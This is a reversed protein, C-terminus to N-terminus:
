QGEGLGGAEDSRRSGLGVPLILPDLLQGALTPAVKADIGYVPPWHKPLWATGFVRDILPFIAAFNRDRNEDNTHHWHHFAPTSVLWELPGLRFRVNAHIFFSWITGVITVIAVGPDLGRGTSQALGLLYVPALGSLRTFVMDFPHARTNVLWDVHEASHHIAHFRWLLPYAHSARHGWYAGIDNVLFVVPLKLWLPWVAVASYLGGPDAGRLALALISLPVAIIAAPLLSNIFYWALDVGVQKRWIKAPHLAFLRELPVFLAVLLVLWVALRGVDIAFGLAQRTLHDTM